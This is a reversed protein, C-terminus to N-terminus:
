AIKCSKTYIVYPLPALVLERTDPLAGIRGRHPMTRLSRAADKIRILTSSVLEPRHERLYRHISDLDAAAPISWEIARV